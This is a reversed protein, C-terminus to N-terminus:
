WSIALENATIPELTSSNGHKYYTIYHSVNLIEFDSIVRKDSQSGWGISLTPPYNYYNKLRVESMRQKAFVALTCSNVDKPYDSYDFNCGVKISFTPYM